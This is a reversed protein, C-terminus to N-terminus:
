KNKFTDIYIRCFINKTIGNEPKENKKMNLFNVKVKRFLYLFVIVTPVKLFIKKSEKIYM